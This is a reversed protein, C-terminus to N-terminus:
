VGQTNSHAPIHNFSRGPDVLDVALGDLRLWGEATLRVGRDVGEMPVAFGRDIWRAVQDQQTPTLADMALGRDTRLRLWIRELAADNETVREDGELPLRKSNVAERYADWGRLNWRRVPPYYGHAGPGLAAYPAGTWYASNHRSRRGPL